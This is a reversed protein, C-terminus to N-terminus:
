SHKQNKAIADEIMGKIEDLTYGSRLILALNKEGMDQMIREATLEENRLRLQKIRWTIVQRLLADSMARLNASVPKM